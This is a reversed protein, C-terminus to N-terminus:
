EERSWDCTCMHVEISVISLHAYVRVYMCVILHIKLLINNMKPNSRWSLQYSLRIPM